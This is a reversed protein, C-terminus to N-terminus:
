LPFKSPNQYTGAGPRHRVTALASRRRDDQDQRGRRAPPTQAQLRASRSAGTVKRVAFTSRPATSAVTVAVPASFATTVTCTPDCTEPSMEFSPASKLLWTLSPCIMACISGIRKLALRACASAPSFDASAASTRASTVTRWAFISSSRALGRGVCCTMPAASSSAAREFYSWATASRADASACTACDRADTPTARTSKSCVVIRAGMEPVTSCRDTSTPCVTAADSCAGTSNM